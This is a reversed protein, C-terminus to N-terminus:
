EWAFQVGILMQLDFDFESKFNGPSEPSNWGAFREPTTKGASPNYSLRLSLPFKVPGYRYDLAVQAALYIGNQKAPVLLLANESPINIETIKLYNSIGIVFEPGLGGSIRLGSDDLEFAIKLMLPIRLDTAGIELERSQEDQKQWGTGRKLSLGVGVEAYIVRWLQVEFFLGASFGTGSFLTGYMFTPSQSPDNPQGLRSYVPGLAIGVSGKALTTRPTFLLLCSTTILIFLVTIRYM